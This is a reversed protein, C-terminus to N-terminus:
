VEKQQKKQMEYDLLHEATKRRWLGTYKPTSGTGTHVAYTPWDRYVGPPFQPEGRKKLM